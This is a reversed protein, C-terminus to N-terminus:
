NAKHWEHFDSVLKKTLDDLKENPLGDLHAVNLHRLLGLDDRLAREAVTRVAQAKVDDIGHLNKYALRLEYSNTHAIAFAYGNPNRPDKVTKEAYIILSSYGGRDIVEFEQVARLHTLLSDHIMKKAAADDCIVAVSVSRSKEEALLNASEGCLLTVVLTILANISKRSPM